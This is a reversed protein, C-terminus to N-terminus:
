INTRERDREQVVKKRKKPFCVYAVNVLVVM